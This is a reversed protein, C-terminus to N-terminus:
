NLNIGAHLIKDVCLKPPAHPMMARSSCDGCQQTVAAFTVNMKHEMLTEFVCTDVCVRNRVDVFFFNRKRNNTTRFRCVCVSIRRGPWVVFDDPTATECCIFQMDGKEYFNNRQREDFTRWALKKTLTTTKKKKKNM